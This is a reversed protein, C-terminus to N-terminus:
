GQPNTCFLTPREPFFTQRLKENSQANAARIRARQEPSLQVRTGPRPLRRKLLANLGVFLPNPGGTRLRTNIRKGLRLFLDIEEASLSLNQRPPTVLPARDIGAVACFDDLLDGGHMATKDFLRVTLNDRGVVKAWLSARRFFNQRNLQTEIHADLTVRDGRRICESYTSLMFDEQPRYYVVYRVEDFIDTLFGHLAAIRAENFLWAHIQESSALYSHEPWRTVGERLMAEFRDVYAVQSARDKIKMAHLKSPSQLVDGARVIGALGLEMHAINRATFPQIRVGQSSLSPRNLALFSQITTTGTKQTGIHIVAKM